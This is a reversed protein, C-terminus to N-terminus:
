VLDDDGDKAGGEAECETIVKIPDWGSLTPDIDFGEEKLQILRVAVDRDRGELETGKNVGFRQLMAKVFSIRKDREAKGMEQPMFGRFTAILEDETVEPIDVEPTDDTAEPEPEKEPKAKPKRTPKEKTAPKEEEAAKEPATKQDKQFQKYKSEPVKVVTASERKVAVWEKSNNCEGCQGTKNDIWYIPEDYEVVPSDVAKADSKGGSRMADALNNNSEALTKMASTLAELQEIM